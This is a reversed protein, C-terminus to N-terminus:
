VLSQIGDSFYISEIGILNAEFSNDDALVDYSGDTLSTITVSDQTLDIYLIDNGEGGDIYDYGGNGIYISDDGAFTFINNDVMNDTIIDSGSGTKINEIITGTSIAFNNKGTYLLGTNYLDNYIFDSIYDNFDSDNVSNQYYNVVEDVSYEDVSNLSGPNLDVRSSGTGASFDLTDTGGADWITEIKNDTFTLTYIDDGTATTDNVGYVSQLAAVDYLSYLQSSINTGTAKIFKKDATETITFGPYYNDRQTYSMITHNADDVEAPLTVDGDFPHELGLAHGLEHAMTSWGEEGAELGYSDPDSNFQSSLFIDGAYTPNDGPYFAFGSTDADMDVINIGIMGDSGLNEFSVGLLEGVADFISTMANKQANNLETWGTTLETGDGYNYYDNPISTNFTYTITTSNDWYTESLLASVGYTNATSLDGLGPNVNSPSLANEDLDNVHLTLNLSSSNGSADTALVSFAYSSKSEFDPNELLTVAGSQADISFYSADGVSELSYVVSSEDSAAATYILQNAGSNEDIPDLASSSSFVPANEDLDNVHLTLNLSSSNGSADTALVSFAYSSKSEFDPNELLTVAGSQADISFYSADGVSELSYVVSSEDSAAATYILQNAGSNEDIPDLASSSSFVPANEDLDNVHLTLNLSSSNGSADTALVSFAYSSKSEFDPNELLTVAGSQADISFYSADGVSELSYVVSSEDSAAATYILQNAGSNEDIPDLASSSSFVPANEDLDNVHLTLNLSSSNGSADTALVSFAYSSKSEFDPNELLTVAGSQADISFYSADGVSELSYVVSSEDSAAATYILQNAGSNEDIPDLASSSSFVPANEDLDNVHLTLNLSSSNGSADTALVSFAYSSKSEFDPNELLTVAGSQADISFYSADGVSELSYVVSSEDSAAATYILQNAGSNEDIPDLASSSSFVPANEDLDNVHLTLNLSSSNGSADTALVSFAYSSKSEFDPNELLTVAGSQADISFYSADGVSELSYVVSSEDSAAATYILQNAGSNEDIPDLASSSSFVPANEDLDNVHLTLNLSSSNGSADTALVSFAYSSKSEFDPNELLTVAGSQADISFYSADGVSELSYVVSSEDSAAATYILQNAGSNEDIPDLASSSSFVPANEDLDNVHLTLNLSSSNGSADTALVSFAYSSKSEFDPNELLTVAGSQADISFYSADGVSELSYVVSSEDSAAATYILQNAGSNEDIPDLASSSSFVPANEDLDNVHLTLNLSSSNGSADTALVSFAYSSKSEFDPNELLTVAGSQADISFYSADGVSELSYVVSSEDSAAATYILQNAGSNEDIPDLASSSSFVPANEDLDNVHLTLNLSSSNGSADTALVSFAYSSKSEFDPNELLTVAGSQADISFYSADGVSELSYVVSSEDSAAATYILQNAGSNEDIPDLASSSSFVPANEDLDNVHLTLNLSSSNGSADTALVSFAYSSKSEFDPNELLTVAGSQADISFYSADGVSELSYVVSSEDSAAATYILQNAGSNEDIPDLASSSSFVPANEDLFILINEPKIDNVTDLIDIADDRNAVLNISEIVNDVTTKDYTVNSLVDVSAQYASDEDLSIIDAPDTSADLNTLDALTDTFHLAVNVKNAIYAQRQLASDIQSQSLNQYQPDNPNFDLSISIFNAVMDSRSMGTNIQQTWYQIGESDGAQGLTNIYIANVFENNDLQSYLDNFIEHTAFGSALTKIAVDEGLNLSQAEWYLLGALDPARNFFAIYLGSIKERITAM